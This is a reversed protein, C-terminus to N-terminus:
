PTGMNIDLVMNAFTANTGEIFSLLMVYQYLVDQKLKIQSKSNDAIKADQDTLNTYRMGKAPLIFALHRINTQHRINLVLKAIAEHISLKVQHALKQFM